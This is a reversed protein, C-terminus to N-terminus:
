LRGVMMDPALPTGRTFWEKDEHNVDCRSVEVTGDPAVRVHHMVGVVGVQGQDAQFRGAATLRKQAQHRTLFGVPMEGFTPTTLRERADM